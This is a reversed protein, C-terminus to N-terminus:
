EGHASRPAARQCSCSSNSALTVLRLARVCSCAVSAQLISVHYQVSFRIVSLVVRQSNTVLCATNSNHSHAAQCLQNVISVPKRQPCEVLRAQETRARYTGTTYVDRPTRSQKIHTYRVLSTVCVLPVSVKCVCLCCCHFPHTQRYIVCFGTM